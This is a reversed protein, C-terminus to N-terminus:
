GMLERADATTELISLNEGGTGGRVEKGPLGKRCRFLKTRDLLHLRCHPPLIGSPCILSLPPLHIFAGNLSTSFHEQHIRFQFNFMKSLLIELEQRVLMPQPKKGQAWGASAPPLQHTGTSAGLSHSAHKDHLMHRSPLSMYFPPSTYSPPSSAWVGPLPMPQSPKM